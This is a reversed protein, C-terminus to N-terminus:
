VTRSVSMEGTQSTARYEEESAAPLLVWLTYIGLATGFPMDLLGIVGLVIALMRAWPQHTLLGWGTVGGLLATFVLYLGVVDLIRFVFYPFDPDFAGFSVFRAVLLLIIGPVLRFAAASALWLIGLLRIHGAIRGHRPMMSKTEVAHGCGSCFAAGAPLTTGCGACYM